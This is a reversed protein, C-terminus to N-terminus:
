RTSTRGCPRSSRVRSGSSCVPSSPRPDRNWSTAPGATKWWTSSAAWGARSSRSATSTPSRSSAPARRRATLCCSGAFYEVAEQESVFRPVVEVRSAIGLEHLRRITADKGQWFEGVVSLHLDDRELRAVADLLVDMGKYPRVFGFFLLELNARRELHGCPLPFHDYLPHPVAVVRAGPLFSKLKDAEARAQTCYGHAGALVMRSLWRKYAATEHDVVNHCLFVVRIGRRQLSRKLYAVPCAFYVTWWPIVVAEVDAEVLLRVARRWTPPNLPDLVYRVGPELHGEYSPDRDSEGPFLWRPYQRTFSITTVTARARLARHLRTTHQAIGGRFPLVPGILGLRRTEV